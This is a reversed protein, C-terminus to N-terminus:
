AVEDEYVNPRFAERLVRELRDLDRPQMRRLRGYHAKCVLVASVDDNDRLGVSATSGSCKSLPSYMCRADSLADLAVDPTPHRSSRPRRRSFLRLM